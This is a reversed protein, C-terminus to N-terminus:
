KPLDSLDFTNDGKLLISGENPVITKVNKYNKIFQFYIM